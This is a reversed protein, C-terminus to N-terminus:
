LREIRTNDKIYVNAKNLVTIVMITNAKFGIVIATNTVTDIVIAEEQARQLDLLREAGLALVNGTVVYADVGREAMRQIAHATARLGYRRGEIKIQALAQSNVKAV